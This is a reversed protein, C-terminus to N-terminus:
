IFFITIRKVDLAKSANAERGPKAPWRSATIRHHPHEGIGIM